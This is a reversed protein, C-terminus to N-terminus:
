GRAYAQAVWYLKWGVSVPVASVAEPDRAERAASMNKVAADKDEKGRTEM